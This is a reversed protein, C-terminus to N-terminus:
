EAAWALPAFGARHAMQELLVALSEEQRNFRVHVAGDSLAQVTVTVTASMGDPALRATDGPTLAHQRPTLLRAGDMSLDAIRVTM